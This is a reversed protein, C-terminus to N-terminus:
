SSDRLRGSITRVSSKRIGTELGAVLREWLCEMQRSVSGRPRSVPGATCTWGSEKIKTMWILDGITEKGEQLSHVM